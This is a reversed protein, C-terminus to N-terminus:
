FMPSSTNAHSCAIASNFRHGTLDYKCYTNFNIQGVLEVIDRRVLPEGGTLRIKSVGEQVFLEALKVIEETTLLSEHPTLEVGDEPM